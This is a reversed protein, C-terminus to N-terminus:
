KAPKPNVGVERKWDALLRELDARKRPEKAAVDQEEAPDEKLNYLEHNGALSAVLKWDGAIVAAYRDEYHRYLFIAERDLRGKGTLLPMLSVGDLPRHSSPDGGAAEVFTPFLDTSLVPIDCQSGAKVRGPWRVALPVRAGGEYLSTGGTKGGRLPENLFFGGQDSFFVVMTREAQGNENLARLVRGIADDTAEVMAGLQAQNGKLGRREYKAVLDRRGRHPTHVNYFFLSLLFPQEADRRRNLFAVADDTLRDTLYKDDPADPYPNMPRPWYPPYYNGPHGANAVGHQEDFGQRIPHYPEHGLHWKGVFASHYGLPKLAEAFTTVDLPLWNRSPFQAPDTPLVHWEQDTRGAADFGYAKGAPIHRVIRLRAPHQGTVVSARSPSCAPAAAYARSFRMGAAALRDINPTDFLEGQYSVHRWGLDDVFLLVINPREAEGAAHFPAFVVLGLLSLVFPIRFRSM